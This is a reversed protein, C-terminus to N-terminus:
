DDGFKMELTNSPSFGMRLYMPLGMSSAGLRIVRCGRARGWDICAQTLRQGLGRGRGEPVVYVSTIYGIERQFIISRHNHLKYIAASGVPAGASEAIYVAAHDSQIRSSFFERFRERWGPYMVDPDSGNLERNMAARLSIATDLEAAPIERIDVDLAPM